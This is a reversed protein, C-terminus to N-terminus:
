QVLAGLVEMAKQGPGPRVVQTKIQNEKLHFDTAFNQWRHIADIFLKEKSAAVTCDDTWICQYLNGALHNRDVRGHGIWVLLSLFPTVRSWGTSYWSQQQSLKWRMQQLPDMECSMWHNCMLNAWDCLPGKQLGNIPDQKLMDVDITDFCHSFDLAAGWGFKMLFADAIAAQIEPGDPRRCCIDKPM